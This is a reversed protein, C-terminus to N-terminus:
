CLSNVVQIAHGFRALTLKQGLLQVINKMEPGHVQGTLAARLPMFLAKGKVGLTQTLHAAIMGFDAGHSVVFDRAEIFFSAGAEQLLKVITEHYTIEPAQLCAIWAAVENPFLVNDRITAFMLSRVTTPVQGTIDSGVWSWFQAEDLAHVAQKQWYRLQAIDFRSASTGLHQQNFNKALDTFDMLETTEYSHGVRAMYNTLAKSLYGSDRLQQISQSGHRKSLPSGDHGVILAIHAYEPVPLQLAKLIMIQRPTNTLHDEGRVVLTVGMLADDIANCYMFSAMGDARRIIFDGIDHTNFQQLGKVRDKFEVLTNEPLRFRLTPTIQQQKIAIDSASLHRCTGPYRPPKGAARQVKRTLALQHESCFCPYAFGHTILQEYYQHYIAQRQSQFYPGNDGGVGPGEQWQIGLWALDQQVADSYEAKSRVLDTDEIRLLFQGQPHQQAILASFLATRANGLHILGTPSPCFRTKM